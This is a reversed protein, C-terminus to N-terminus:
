LRERCSGVDQGAAKFCEEDGLCNLDSLCGFECNSFRADACYQSPQCLIEEDGFSGCATVGASTAGGPKGDRPNSAPAKGQNQCTGVNTGDRKVCRQDEACNENSLCGEACESFTPDVCHTGPQCYNEEFVGGALFDGCETYGQEDGDDAILCAPSLLLAAALLLHHLPRM